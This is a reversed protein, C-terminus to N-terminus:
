QQERLHQLSSQMQMKVAENQEKAIANQLAPVAIDPPRASLARSAAIRMAPTEDSLAKFSAAIVRQSDDQSLKHFRSLQSFALVRSGSDTSSQLVEFITNLCSEDDLNLLYMTTYVRLYQPSDHGTCMSKLTEFGQKDGLQGLALAIGAKAEPVTESQLAESIAPVANTAKDEALVLASWSRVHPDPNRLAAVLSPETLEINRQTLLERFTMMHGTQAVPTQPTARLGALLFLLIALTSNNPRM